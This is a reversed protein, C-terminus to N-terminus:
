LHYRVNPGRGPPHLADHRLRGVEGQVTVGARDVQSQQVLHNGVMREEVGLDEGEEGAEELVGVTLAWKYFFFLIEFTVIAISIM